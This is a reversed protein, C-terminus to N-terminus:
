VSEGKLSRIAKAYDDSSFVTNGAVFIDTGAEALERCNDFTVGGDVEIMIDKGHAAIMAKLDKIKQLVAPIFGQGGYGPNVSMLLVMDVDDLVYKITELPTAPNLVVAPMKGCGAIQKLVRQVHATAEVHISILDSGAQAFREIYREPQEIMLHVDLPITAFKKIDAIMQFGFTLNPVFVGDMVDCHIYDAGAQEIRKVDREMNAFDASLISPAIKISM